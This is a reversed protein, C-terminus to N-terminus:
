AKHFSPPQHRAPPSTTMLSQRLLNNSHRNPLSNPFTTSRWSAPTTSVPHPPHTVPNYPSNNTPIKARNNCKTISTPLSLLLRSKPKLYTPKHTTTPPPHHNTYNSRGPTTSKPKSKFNHLPKCLNSINHNSPMAWTPPLIRRSYIRIQHHLQNSLTSSLTPPHAVKTSRNPWPSFPTTHLKNCRPM